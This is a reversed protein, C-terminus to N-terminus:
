KVAIFLDKQLNLTLTPRYAILPKTLYFVEPGCHRDSTIGGFRRAKESVIMYEFVRGKNKKLQQVTCEVKHTSCVL